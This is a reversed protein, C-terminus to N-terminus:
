ETCEIYGDRTVQNPCWTDLNVTYADARRARARELLRTADMADTAPAVSRYSGQRLYVRATAIGLRRAITETEYKASELSRDGGFVVAPRGDAQLSATAKAVLAANASLTGQASSTLRASGELLSRNRGELTDLRTQEEPTKAAAKVEALLQQNQAELDKIKALAETLQRTTEVLGAKWKFGVISGEEFGADTLVSNLKAPFLLLLIGLLLLLSSTLLAVFEKLTTIVSGWSVRGGKPEDSM